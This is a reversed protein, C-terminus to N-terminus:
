ARVGAGFVLPWLAKNRRSFLGLHGVKRLGYQAPDLTTHTVNRRDYLAGLREVCHRPILDDDALSILRVPATGRWDPVPLLDGFDSAFFDPSTCWRRWQWYAPGPLDAGFGAARGPLYGMVSTLAPGLGFWFMLAIARYPWPHDSYHVPGGAVGVVRAIDDTDAQMPVTMAGLSHGLVWIPTEPFLTRLKRRAANADSVGWDSMRAKAHRVPGTASRGTDRYDYTLCALGQEAALWEAFARYYEQPVGTAGNLVVAAFPRGEPRYLRGVLQAGDEAKFVHLRPPAIQRSQLADFM